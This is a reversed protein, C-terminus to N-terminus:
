MKMYTTSHYIIMCSEIPLRRRERRRRARQLHLQLRNRGSRTSRRPHTCQSKRSAEEKGPRSQFPIYPVHCDAQTSPRRQLVQPEVDRKSLPPKVPKALASQRTPIRRRQDSDPVELSRRQRISRKPQQALSTLTRKPSAQLRALERRHTHRLARLDTHVNIICCPPRM